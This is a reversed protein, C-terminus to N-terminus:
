ERRFAAVLGAVEVRLDSLAMRLNLVQDQLPTGVDPFGRRRAARDAAVARRACRAKVPRESLRGQVTVAETRAHNRHMM